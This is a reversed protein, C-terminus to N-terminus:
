DASQAYRAFRAMLDKTVPGPAGSGIASGDVSAVPVIDKFSSTLFAEDASLLERLPLAREEARMGAERALELTMKRTIGALVGDKPTTLVGDKVAFINSGTCELVTGQSVYAAEVAKKAALVSQLMVAATYDITKYEPLARQHEHTIISAGHEYWEVPYPKMPESLIYLTERGAVHRIGADATGGTLIMRIIGRGRPANAKAVARMGELVEEEGFPLTLDLAKASRMFREWHDSFRFPEGDHTAIGEYIGFGRLLALDYVGISAQSLPVLEGQLWVHPEMTFPM